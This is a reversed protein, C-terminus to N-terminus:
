SAPGVRAVVAAFRPRARLAAFAPDVRVFVLWPDRTECADELRQMASDAQRLAAALVARQYPSVFSREAMADLAALERRAESSRGLAALACARAARMSPGGEVLALARDMAVLAARGNGNNLFARGLSWQSLFHLPEIEAARRALELEREKEGALGHLYAAIVNSGPSLPDAERARSVERLAAGLEGRLGLFLGHCLRAAASAPRMAVAREFSARAGSWDWAEFLRIFGLSVHVSVLRDDLHL